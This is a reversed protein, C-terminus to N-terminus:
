CALQTHAVVLPYWVHLSMVASSAVSALMWGGQKSSLAAPVDQTLAKHVALLSPQVLVMQLLPGAWQAHRQQWRRVAAVHARVWSTTCQQAAVDSSPQKQQQQCAEQASQAVGWKPLAQALWQGAAALATTWRAAGTSPGHQQQQQQLKHTNSSSDPSPKLVQQASAEIRECAELVGNCIPWLFILLMVQVCLPSRAPLM